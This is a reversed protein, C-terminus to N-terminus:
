HNLVAVYMESWGAGIEKEFGTEGFNLVFVVRPVVSSDRRTWFACLFDGHGEEEACLLIDLTNIVELVGVEDQRPVQDLQRSNM